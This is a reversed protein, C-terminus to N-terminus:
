SQDVCIEDLSVGNLMLIPIPKNKSHDILKDVPTKNLGLLRCRMDICSRVGELFRPDGNQKQTKAVKVLVKSDPKESSQIEQEKYDECSKQWADWYELELRNIRALERARAEDFNAQADKMWLQTLWKLDRSVTSQSINLETAIDLQSRGALYMSSVQRRQYARHQSSRNIAM